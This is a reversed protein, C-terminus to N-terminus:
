GTQVSVFKPQLYANLGEIGGESGQGSDKIGGFPTEPMALGAHNISVMGSEVERSLKNVRDARTTFAYAALGFDLRNAEKVAADLDGFRSVVAVPGFPEENQIRASLPVDTLVTPQFFYGQNGIREGGTRVTAGHEVADRVFGEIADVRRSNALPGMQTGEAM